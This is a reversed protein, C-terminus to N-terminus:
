KLKKSEAKGSTLLSIQKNYTTANGSFPFHLESVIWPMFYFVYCSRGKFLIQKVKYTIPFQTVSFKYLQHFVTNM